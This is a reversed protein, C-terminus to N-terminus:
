KEKSSDENKLFLKSIIASVIVLVLLFSISIYFEKSGVRLVNEGINIFVVLGPLVGVITTLIYPIFKIETVGSIYNVLNYSFIPSLRIIFLVLSLIKQNTSNLANQLKKSMHKNVFSHVFDKLLFRGIFYMIPTNIMVGILTYLSGKFLGFITGGAVVIIPVPFFFIPLIVFIAIYIVAAWNDNALVWKKIGELSIKKVVFISIAAILIIAFIKIAKIAKDNELFSNLKNERRKDTM